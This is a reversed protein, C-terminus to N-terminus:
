EAEQESPESPTSPESPESPTSPISPTAPILHAIEQGMRITDGATVSPNWQLDPNDSLLVVSSGLHFCGMEAGRQLHIAKEAHQPFSTIRQSAPTVLGHWTTEISGVNIAGVMILAIKGLATTFISIVRENLAYIPIADLSYPAVSYLRGPIHLMNDLQGDTPMHVRHYDRPSLYVTFFQGQEFEAAHTSHHGLLDPVTYHHGKITINASPLIEGIEIITGDCPCALTKPDDCILRAEPKLRRTFFEDFSDYDLPSYAIAESMDVKFYRIYASVLPDKWSTKWRSAYFVMRSILHHPLLHFIWIRIRQLLKLLM